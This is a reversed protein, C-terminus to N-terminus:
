RFGNVLVLDQGVYDSQSYLIHQRDPSVTLGMNPRGSIPTVLRIMGNSFDLYYVGFHAASNPGPIFYIGHAVVAFARNIVSPLTIGLPATGGVLAVRDTLEEDSIGIQM